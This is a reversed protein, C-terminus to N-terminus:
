KVRSFGMKEYNFDENAALINEGFGKTSEIIARRQLYHGRLHDNQSDMFDVVFAVNPGAKKKRLGRGIRQRLAVEAKGGGGLIILGVAPVDVGVDLITSGILVDLEGDALLKLQAKRTAHDSEGYIFDARLGAVTMMKLLREGHAKHQILCMTSLGYDRGRKAEEVIAQNRAEYEVVGLRYASAWSTSRYLKAAPEQMKCFKFFPKALIGREILTEESVRIGVPGAVAMLKMNAEEDDKMFPTATLAMRYHANVCHGMIGYFGAGSAEHAEELIVLEFKSLLKITQARVADQKAVKAAAVRKIAEADERAKTQETAFEKLIRAQEAPSVKMLKLATKKAAFAAQEKKLIADYVREFEGQLTLVELRANLTQVMGVTMRKISRRETGDADVTVSGFQGDGLVSVEIGMDNEFAAKMQYMLLSRTTLFLTPRGIRAFAKKAIRSKGGGTAVQAIIKGHRVLRNVTDMQYDYDPDEGFADVVPNEPGLPEPLPKKVVNVKYGRRTLHATVLHVFGAPFVGDRFSLFSSKGDWGSNKFATTQEAGAVNYSLIQQVELKVERSAEHLKANVASHAITVNIM